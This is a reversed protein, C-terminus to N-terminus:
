APVVLHPSRRRGRDLDPWAVETILEDPTGLRQLVLVKQEPGADIALKIDSLVM